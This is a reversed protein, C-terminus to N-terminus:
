PQRRVPYHNSLPRTVCSHVHVLRTVLRTCNPFSFDAPWRGFQNPQVTVSRYHIDAAKYSTEVALTHTSSLLLVASLRSMLARPMRMRNTALRQLSARDIRNM